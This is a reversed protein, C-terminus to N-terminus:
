CISVLILDRERQAVFTPHSECFIGFQFVGTKSALIKILFDLCQFSRPSIWTTLDGGSECSLGWCPFCLLARLRPFTFCLLTVWFYLFLSATGHSLDNTAPREGRLGPNAGADIWTSNTTSLTFSPCTKRRTRRNEKDIDNWRREGFEYWRPFAYHALSQRVCTSLHRWETLSTTSYTV